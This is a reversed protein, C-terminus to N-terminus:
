AYDLIKRGKLNKTGILNLLNHFMHGRETGGNFVYDYEKLLMFPQKIKGEKLLTELRKKAGKNYRAQEKSLTNENM